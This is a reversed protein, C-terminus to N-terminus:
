VVKFQRKRYVRYKKSYLKNYQFNRKIKRKFKTKAREAREATRFLKGTSNRKTNLEIKKESLEKSATEIQARIQFLSTKIDIAGAHVISDKTIFDGDMTVFQFSPFQKKLEFASNLNSVVVTHELFPKLLFNNLNWKVKENLFCIFAPYAKIEQKVTEEVPVCPLSSLFSTKGKKEKKLREIGIDISSQEKPIVAQSYPGLIASLATTYEPEVELNQFLSCFEEPKWRILDDAGPNINEFQSLFKKMEENKHTLVSVASQLLRFEKEMVSRKELTQSETQNLAKLKENFLFQNQNEKKLLPISQSKNNINEKIKEQFDKEESILNEIENGVFQIQKELIDINSSLLNKNQKSEDLSKKERLLNKEINEFTLDGKFFKKFENLEKQISQEKEKLSEKKDKVVQIMKFTKAKENLSMEIMKKDMIDKTINENQKKLNEILSDMKQIENTKQELKQKTKDQEQEAQKAKFEIDSQEKILNHYASSYIQKKRSEIEQKLKKYKDAKKAQSALQSLQSEQMKLIDDLRKLNQNVLDLKRNSEQKRNKFKTIGAVEEIIFRRQIPKATILKEISEQEIISFGKCGAGTNMFLERIDRLLCAKNNIFCENKGDRYSRRSIMLESFTKYEEPLERNGKSLTLKVEALGCPAEKNTGGFIVDSLSDGRLHKPSNEGMVWLLADVINSKGCGNPGVIGTINENDFELVTKKKFSKFGFIELRKIFM